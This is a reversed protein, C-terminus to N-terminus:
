ALLLDLDAGQQLAQQVVSKRIDTWYPAVDVFVGNRSLSQLYGSAEEEVSCNEKLYFNGLSDKGVHLLGTASKKGPDTKPDKILNVSQGSVKAWTAKTAISFNDRTVYQYTFSGVGFVVNTSAFGKDILGKVILRLREPTISDGYILGVKDNLLKYGQSTVTGGFIEWLIQVSGKYELSGVPADPDGCIVKVPDSSDPRFVVKAPFGTADPTRALIVDKLSAAISSVTNWYDWTDSVISVIGTPYLDQILHRFLERENNQGGLSMVMHETAPPSTSILEGVRTAYYRHVVELSSTTDSGTFCSIHGLGTNSFDMIGSMGRGSFDHAQFEVGAATGTTKIAAAMLFRLLEYARSGDVITKWIESNIPTELYNTLYATTPDTNRITAFPVKIPCRSGEPLAKIHLPLYGINHLNKYMTLLGDYDANAPMSPRLVDGYYDSLQSWPTDFFQWALEHIYGVARRVGVILAKNDADPYLGAYRASRPTINTYVESVSPDIMKHHSLKYKDTALMLSPAFVSFRFQNKM